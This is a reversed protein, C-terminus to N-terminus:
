GDGTADLIDDLKIIEEMTVVGIFLGRGDTVPLRDVASADMAEVAQRLLWDPRATPVDTRMIAGIETEDWDERPTQRLEEIRVMGVYDAGDVVPVSQQRSGIVHHWFFEQATANPPITLVDSRLASAIPMSFRRELHGLRSGVQLKSVSWRGMMLQATVSAILGPVIFGPRGTTEAVFMVAALPVRYGAGLFAAIGILPFLTSDTDGFLGGVARGLLAGQVVLPIFLGGVGRGGVTVATAAARLAFLVLVLGVARTPDLSWTVTDYGAGLTFPQDFIVDSVYALGALLVGAVVALMLPDREDGLAKVWQVGAAFLRAIAGCLLGVVVAGSLEAFGFGPAGSVPLLPETGLLAVFTLYGAAAAISAPLLQRRALDDRYPVELAFVVGTAPARFIAAVGAAAGAVLLVKTEERSFFRGLRSQLLTGAQAGAYISPGEYGLAGGSGLTFVAALMRAPFPRLPLRRNRHHFNEIYEDATAPSQGGLFKICLAAGVLGILPASCRVWLPADVLAHFIVERTLYEFGAVVAGTLIGTAAAFFLVQQSRRSLALIQERRYSDPIPLYRSRRFRGM